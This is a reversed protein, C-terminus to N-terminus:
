LGIKIAKIEIEDELKKRKGRFAKEKEIWDDELKEELEKGEFAEMSAWLTSDEMTEEEGQLESRLWAAKENHDQLDLFLELEALWWDILWMDIGENM